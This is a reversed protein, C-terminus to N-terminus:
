PAEEQENAEAAEGQREASVVASMLAQMREVDAASLAVRDRSYYPSMVDSSADSHGLGLCHGIAHLAVPLLAFYHEEGKLFRRHPHRSARGYPTTNPAGVRLLEWQEMEDFSIADHRARVLCGGPGDFVFNNAPSLDVFRIVIDADASAVASEDVHVFTLGSPVAWATFAAALEGVVDSVELYAPVSAGVLRWRVTARYPPPTGAVEAPTEVADYLLGSAVLARRTRPGVIGDAEDVGVLGAALQVAQVAARTRPGFVGDVEPPDAVHDALLMQLVAVAEAEAQAQAQVQAQAQLEAAAGGAGAAACERLMGLSPPFRPGCLVPAPVATGDREELQGNPHEILVHLRTSRASLGNSELAATVDVTVDVIVDDEDDEDAEGVPARYPSGARMPRLLRTPFFVVGFGAYSPADLLRTRWSPTTTTVDTAIGLAGGAGAASTAGAGAPPGTRLPSIWPRGTGEVGYQSSVFVHLVCPGDLLRVDVKEFLAVYPPAAGRAAGALAMGPLSDYAFGLAYGPRFADRAHFQAGTHPNVFSLYPGFPGTPFGKSHLALADLPHTPLPLPSCGREMEVAADPHLELYKAFLRDLTALHLPFLPHFACEGSAMLGGAIGLVTHHLEELSVHRLSAGSYRSCAHVRYLPALLSACAREALGSRELAGRIDDDSFISSLRYGHSTGVPVARNPFFANELEVAMLADRVVSPVVEGARTPHTWDWYPLGLTGDGGLALDARRLMRECELLYARHWPPFSVRRHTCHQEVEVSSGSVSGGVSGTTKPLGARLGAHLAALRYAQSTGPVGAVNERLKLMAQVFRKREEAGLTRCEKRTVIVREDLPAEFWKGAHPLSTLVAAAHSHPPTDTAEKGSPIKGLM